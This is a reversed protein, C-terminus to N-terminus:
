ADKKRFEPPIGLNMTQFVVGFVFYGLTWTNTCLNFDARIAAWSEIKAALILCVCVGFIYAGDLTERQMPHSLKDIWSFCTVELLILEYTLEWTCPILHQLASYKKCWLHFVSKFFSSCQYFSTTQVIICLNKTLISLTELLTISSKITM